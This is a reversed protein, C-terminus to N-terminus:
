PLWQWLKVFLNVLTCNHSHNQDIVRKFLVLTFNLGFYPFRRRHYWMIDVLMSHSVNCYKKIAKIYKSPRAFYTKSIKSIQQKLNEVDERSMAISRLSLARASTGLKWEFANTLLMSSCCCSSSSPSYFTNQTNYNYKFTNTLLMCCCCLCSSPSHFCLSLYVAVVGLIQVTHGFLVFINCICLLLYATIAVWYKSKKDSNDLYLTFTCCLTINPSHSWRNKIM